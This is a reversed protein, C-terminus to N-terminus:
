RPRGSPKGTAGVLLRLESLSLIRTWKVGNCRRCLTQLNEIDSNGGLSYPYVHDIRLDTTTSCARCRGGDRELVARRVAVPIWDRRGFRRPDHSALLRDVSPSPLGAIFAAVAGTPVAGVALAEALSRAPGQARLLGVRELEKRRADTDM